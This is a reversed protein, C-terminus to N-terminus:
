IDNQYSYMADKYEQIIEDVMEKPELIIVDKRFPAFYSKFQMESCDFYYIGINEDSKPLPVPRELYRSKFLFKGNETLKVKYVTNGNISFQVGNRKMKNFQEEINSQFAIHNMDIHVSLINYIHITSAYYKKSKDSFGQYLLYNYLGEQSTCIEKPNISQVRNEKNSKTIIRISQKNQIAENITDIIDRCIIKEREYQPEKLYSYIINALYESESANKPCSDLIFELESDKKNKRINIKRKQKKTENSFVNTKETLYKTIKWVINLYKEENFQHNDSENIITDKIKQKLENINVEYKSYHNIIIKKIIESKNKGTKFLEQDHIIKKYAISDLYITILNDTM